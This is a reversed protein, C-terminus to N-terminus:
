EKRLLYRYLAFSGMGVITAGTALGFGLNEMGKDAGPSTAMMLGSGFLFLSSFSTVAAAACAANRVLVGAKRLMGNAIKPKQKTKQITEMKERIM